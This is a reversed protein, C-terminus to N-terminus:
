LPFGRKAFFKGIRVSSSAWALALNTKALCIGISWSKFISLTATKKSPFPFCGLVMSEKRLCMATKALFAFKLLGCSTSNAIAVYLSVFGKVFSSVFFGVDLLVLGGSLLFVEPLSYVERFPV